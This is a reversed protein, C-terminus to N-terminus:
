RVKSGYRNGYHYHLHQSRTLDLLHIPNCCNKNGCEKIHHLDGNKKGNVYEWIFVHTFYNKGNTHYRGYGNPQLTGQYLWCNNDNIICKNLISEFIYRDNVRQRSLWTGAM